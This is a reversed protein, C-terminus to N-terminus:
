DNWQSAFHEMLDKHLFVYGGGVRRLFGLDVVYNLFPIYVWPGLKFVKLLGRLTYHYVVDLGGYSFGSLLGLVLGFFLAGEVTETASGGMAMACLWVLTVSMGGVSVFVLLASRLSLVIGQNPTSRDLVSVKRLAGVIGGLGLGVVCITIAMKMAAARGLLAVTPLFVLSASIFALLLGLGGAKLVRRGLSFVLKDATKIDSGWTQGRGRFWFTFSFAVGYILSGFIVQTPNIRFVTAFLGFVLGCAVFNILIHKIDQIYHVTGRTIHSPRSFRFGDVAAITLGGAVCTILLWLLLNQEVGILAFRTHTAGYDKVSVLNAITKSAYLLGVGLAMISVSGLFRSIVIYLFRGRSNPLWSPQLDEVLLVTQYGDKMKRALWSLWRTVDAPVYRYGVRQGREIRGSVYTKFLHERLGVNQNGSGLETGVLLMLNLLLPTAALEKLCPKANITEAAAGCTPGANTMYGYIQWEDLSELCVAKRIELKPTLSEYVDARSTVVIGATGLKLFKNIETV